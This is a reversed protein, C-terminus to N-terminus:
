LPPASGRVAGWIAHIVIEDADEDVAYFVWQKSKKLLVYWITDGDLTKYLKGPRPKTKLRELMATLEDDFLNPSIANQRWWGDVAAQQRRARSTFRITM